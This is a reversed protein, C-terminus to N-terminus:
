ANEEEEEGEEGPQGQEEEIQHLLEMIRQSREISDDLHFSLDPIRRLRLRAALERKLFGTAHELGILAKAKAQEDAMLSVYVRAHRLDPSIEVDTVTVDALRPDRAEQLLLISIEEKLL